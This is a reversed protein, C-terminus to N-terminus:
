KDGFHALLAKYADRSVPLIRNVPPDLKLEWDRGRPRIEYIRRLNVLYKRHIRFFGFRALLPTLEDLRRVDTLKEAKRMRLLTDGERAELYFLDGPDIIRRRGAPKRIVFRDVSSQIRAAPM